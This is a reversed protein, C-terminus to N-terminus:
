IKEFYINFYYDFKYDTSPKIQSYEVIVNSLADLADIQSINTNKIYNEDVEIASNFLPNYQIITLDSYLNNNKVDIYSIYLDLTKFRYRDLLNLTIYDYVSQNINKNIFNSYKMSRFTRAEKIKAFLYETLINKANIQIQWKTNNQEDITSQQLLNIAHNDIKLKVVDLINLEELFNKDYYQYGYSTTGISNIQYYQICKDTISVLDEIDMIKSCFFTSEEVINFVGHVKEIEFKKIQLNDKM